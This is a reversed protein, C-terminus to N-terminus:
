GAFGRLVKNLLSDVTNDATNDAAKSLTNLDLSAYFVGM